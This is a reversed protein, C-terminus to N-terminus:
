IKKKTFVTDVVILDIMRIIDKIWINFFIGLYKANTLLGLKCKM